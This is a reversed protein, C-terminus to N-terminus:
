KETAYDCKVKALSILISPSEVFEREVIESLLM